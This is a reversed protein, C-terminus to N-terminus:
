EGREKKKERWDKARPFSRELTDLTKRAEDETMGPALEEAAKQLLARETRERPTAHFYIKDAPAQRMVEVFALERLAKVLSVILALQHRQWTPGRERQAETPALILRSHFAKLLEILDDISTMLHTGM